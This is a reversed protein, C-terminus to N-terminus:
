DFSMDLGSKQKYSLVLYDPFRRFMQFSAANVDNPYGVYKNVWAFDRYTDSIWHMITMITEELEADEDDPRFLMQANLGFRAAMVPLIGCSGDAVIMTRQPPFVTVSPVHGDSLELKYLTTLLDRPSNFNYEREVWSENDDNHLASILRSYLDDVSINILADDGKEEEVNEELLQRKCNEVTEVIDPQEDVVEHENMSEDEQAFLKIRQRENETIDSLSSSSDSKYLILPKPSSRPKLKQRRNVEVVVEVNVNPMDSDSEM